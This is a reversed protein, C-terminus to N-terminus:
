PGRPLRARHDGRHGHAGPGGPGALEGHEGVRPRRGLLRPLGHEARGPGTPRDPAHRLHDDARRRTPQWGANGTPSPTRSPAPPTPCTWTSRTSSTTRAACPLTPSAPRVRRTGTPSA